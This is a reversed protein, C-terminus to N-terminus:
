SREPTFGKPSSSVIIRGNKGGHWRDGARRARDALLLFLAVAVSVTQVPFLVAMQHVKSALSVLSLVRFALNRALYWAARPAEFGFLSRSGRRRQNHVPAAATPQSASIVVGARLLGLRDYPPEIQVFTAAPAPWCHWTPLQKPRSASHRRGNTCRVLSSRQLRADHPWGTALSSKVFAITDDTGL